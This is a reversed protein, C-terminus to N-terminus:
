TSFGIQEVSIYARNTGEYIDQAMTLLAYGYSTFTM